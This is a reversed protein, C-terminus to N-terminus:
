STLGDAYLLAPRGVARTPLMDNPLVPVGFTVMLVIVTVTVNGADRTDPAEGVLTM